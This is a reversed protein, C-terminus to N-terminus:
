VLDELDVAPHGKAKLVKGDERMEMGELKLMNNIHVRNFAVDFNMSLAEATGVAVYVLDCLEKLLAGRNVVTDSDMVDELADDVETFEEAILNQRLVLLDEVRGPPVIAAMASHFSSLKMTVTENKLM